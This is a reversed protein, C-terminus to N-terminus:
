REAAHDGDEEASHHLDKTHAAPPSTLAEQRRVGADVAKDDRERRSRGECADVEAEGFGHREVVHRTRQLTEAFSRAGGEGKRLQEEFAGRKIRLADLDSKFDEM